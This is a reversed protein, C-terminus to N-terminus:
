EDRGAGQLLAVLQEVNRGDIGEYRSTDRQVNGVTVVVERLTDLERQIARMRALCVGLLVSYVLFILLLVLAPDM